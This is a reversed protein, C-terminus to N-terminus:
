LYSAESPGIPLLFLQTSQAALARNDSPRRGRGLRMNQAHVYIVAVGRVPYMEGETETGKQQNSSKWTRFELEASHTGTGLALCTCAGSVFPGDNSRGGM